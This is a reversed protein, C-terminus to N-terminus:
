NKSVCTSGAQIRLSTSDAPAKDQADQTQAQEIRRRLTVDRLRGVLV